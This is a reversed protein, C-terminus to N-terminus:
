REAARVAAIQREIRPRMSAAYEDWQRRAQAEFFAKKKQRDADEDFTKFTRNELGALNAEAAKRRQAISALQRCAQLTARGAPSPDGAARSRIPALDGGGGGLPGLLGEAVTALADAYSMTERAREPRQDPEDVADGARQGPVDVHPEPVPLPPLLREMVGAPNGNPGPPAEGSLRIAVYVGAAILLAVVILPKASSKAM